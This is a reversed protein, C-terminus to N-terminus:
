FPIEALNIPNNMDAETPAYDRPAQQQAPAQAPQQQPAYQAPQQQQAPQAYQPQQAPQQYPQQQPQQQQQGGGNQRNEDIDYAQLWGDFPNDSDGLPISDLKVSFTQYQDNYFLKGVTNYRKKSEGQNNVYETTHVLNKIPKSSM